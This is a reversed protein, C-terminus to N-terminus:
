NEAQQCLAETAGPFYPPPGYLVINGQLLQAARCLCTSPLALSLTPEPHM